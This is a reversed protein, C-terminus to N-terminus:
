KEPNKKNKNPSKLPVGSGGQPPNQTNLTGQRPQYGLETPQYGDNSIVKKELQKKIESM